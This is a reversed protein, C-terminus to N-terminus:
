GDRAQYTILEVLTPKTTNDTRGTFWIGHSSSLKAVDIKTTDHNAINRGKDDKIFILNSLVGDNVNDKQSATM